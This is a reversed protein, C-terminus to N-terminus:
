LSTIIIVTYYSRKADDDFCDLLLLSPLYTFVVQGWFYFDKGAWSAKHRQIGSIIDLFWIPVV